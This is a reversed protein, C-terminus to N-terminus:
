SQDREKIFEDKMSLGNKLADKIKGLKELTEVMTLGHKPCFTDSPTDMIFRSMKAFAYDINNALKLQYHNM